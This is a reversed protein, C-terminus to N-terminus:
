FGRDRFSQGQAVLEELLPAPAFADGYEKTLDQLRGLVVALGVQEAYFM